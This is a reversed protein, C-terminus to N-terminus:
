EGLYFNTLKGWAHVLAPAMVATAACTQAGAGLTLSTWLVNTSTPTLAGGAFIQIVETPGAIATLTMLAGFGIICGYGMVQLDSLGGQDADAAPPAPEAPRTAPAAPPAQDSAAFAPVSPHAMVLALTLALSTARTLRPRLVAPKCSRM